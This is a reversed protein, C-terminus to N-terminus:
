LNYKEKIEKEAKFWDAIDDGPLGSKSREQYLDYAKQEVEQLFDKLEPKAPNKAAQAGKKATSKKTTGKRVPM